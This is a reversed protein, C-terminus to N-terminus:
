GETDIFYIDLTSPPAPVKRPQAQQAVVLTSTTVLAVLLLLTRTRMPPLKYSEVASPSVIFVKTVVIAASSTAPVANACTFVIVSASLTPTYMDASSTVAATAFSGFFGSADTGTNLSPGKLTFTSCRSPM